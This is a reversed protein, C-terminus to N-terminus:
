EKTPFTNPRRKEVIKLEHTKVCVRCLVKWDGLNFLGNDPYEELDYNLNSDYFAKSDCVDCHRYDAYAM